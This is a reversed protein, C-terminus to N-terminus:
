KTAKKAWTTGARFHWALGVPLGLGLIRHAWGFGNRWTESGAYYLGVGTAILGLFVLEMGFGTAWNARLAWGYRIHEALLFGFIACMVPNCGGHIVRSFHLWALREGSRDQLWDGMLVAFGSIFTASLFFLLIGLTLPPLRAPRSAPDLGTRM